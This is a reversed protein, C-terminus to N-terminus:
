NIKELEDWYISDPSTFITEPLDSYVGVDKPGRNDSRDYSLKISGAQQYNDWPWVATPSDQATNAYFSWQKILNDARDIYVEYKNQPTMGVDAFTLELVDADTGGPITDERLYKLTVGSDKLKFPMFLWYSDNIWISKGQSVMKKLSDIETVEKGKSFVKGTDAIINILYVTSDYPTEIRVNGTRKDWVLDRRGFFNWKFYRTTDWARRGGMALMVSDALAIAEEDSGEANFGEAPSNEVEDDVTLITDRADYQNECAFSLLLIVFPLISIPKM